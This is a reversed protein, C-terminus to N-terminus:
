SRLKERDQPNYPKKALILIGHALTPFKAFVKDIADIFLNNRPWHLGLEKVIFNM